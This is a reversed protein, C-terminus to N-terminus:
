NSFQIQAFDPIGTPVFDLNTISASAGYGNIPYALPLLYLKEWLYDQLEEYVPIREEMDYYSV